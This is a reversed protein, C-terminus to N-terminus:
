GTPESNIAPFGALPRASKVGDLVAAEVARRALVGVADPLAQVDGCAMAFMTDGDGMTHPPRIVNAIGNQGQAAVKGVAAKDLKANTIICGIVTNQGVGGQLEATASLLIAETNGFGRGDEARVGAIIEGNEIVDGFCNVAVIAGVRLEGSKFAAAGIGGKMSFEHGRCHGVTAGTGAGFNGSRFPAGAFANETARYGMPPGPRIKADGCRLDFLIAASVMPVRAVGADFGIGREELYQMVGGASDLGFASGGSLVVAHTAQRRCRPDLAALERTSPAGGRVDVGCQAGSECVIVTCGTCGVLDQDQGIRFGPIAQIDISEM